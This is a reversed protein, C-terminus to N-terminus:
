YGYNDYDDNDLPTGELAAVILSVIFAIASVGAGAWLAYYAFYTVGLISAAMCCQAFTKISM